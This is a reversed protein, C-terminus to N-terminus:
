QELHIDNDRIVEGWRSIERRLFADGATPTREGPPFPSVDQAAWAKVIAPDSVTEQLARNLTKIVAEPTGAPAYLAQWYVIDLKPGLTAVLSEM